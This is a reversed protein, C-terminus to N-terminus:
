GLKQLMIEKNKGCTECIFGKELINRYKWGIPSKVSNEKIEAKRAKECVQLELSQFMKGTQENIGSLM